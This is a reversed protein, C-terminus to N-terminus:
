GLLLVTKNVSLPLASGRVVAATSLIPRQILQEDFLPVVCDKGNTLTILWVSCYLFPESPRCSGTSLFPDFFMERHIRKVRIQNSWLQTRNRDPLILRRARSFSHRWGIRTIYTTFSYTLDAAYPGLSGLVYTSCLPGSSHRRVVLYM